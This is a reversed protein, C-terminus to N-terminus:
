EGARQQLVAYGYQLFDAGAVASLVAMVLRTQRPALVLGIGFATAAWQALCLPCSILEGVSHQAGHGRVEEHLEGTGAVGVFRTGPARLPSAVADKALLRSLKHTSATPLAIDGASLQAPLRRGTLGGLLALAGVAVGYAGMATAYGVVPQDGSYDRTAATLKDEIRDM